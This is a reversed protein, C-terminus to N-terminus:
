PPVLSYWSFLLVSCLCYFPPGSFQLSLGPSSLIFQSSLVRPFASSFRPVLSLLSFIFVWPRLVFFFVSVCFSGLVSVLLCLRFPYFGSSSSLLFQLSSLPFFFCLFSSLLSVFFCLLVFVCPCPCFVLSLLFSCPFVFLFVFCLPYLM